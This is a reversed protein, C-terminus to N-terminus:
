AAAMMQERMYNGGSECIRIVEDLTRRANAYDRLAAYAIGLQLRGGPWLDDRAERKAVMTELFSAIQALTLEASETTLPEVGALAGEAEAALGKEAFARAFARQARPFPATILTQFRAHTGLLQPTALDHWTRRQSFEFAALYPDHRGFIPQNREGIFLPTQREHGAAVSAAESLETARNVWANYTLTEAGGQAASLEALAQYLSMTLMGCPYAKGGLDIRAEFALEGSDSAVLLNYGGENEAHNVLTWHSHTDLILTKHTAPLAMLANHIELADIGGTIKGNTDVTDHVIWYLGGGETAGGGMASDPPISHGSYYILVADDLTSEAQLTAFAQLITARTARADTLMVVDGKAVAFHQQLM